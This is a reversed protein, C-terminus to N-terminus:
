KGKLFGRKRWLMYCPIMVYVTKRELTLHEQFPSSNRAEGVELHWHIGLNEHYVRHVQFVLWSEASPM